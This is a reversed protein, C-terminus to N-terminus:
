APIGTLFETTMTWARSLRTLLGHPKAVLGYVQFLELIHATKRNSEFGSHNVAHLERFLNRFLEGNNIFGDIALANNTDKIRYKERFFLNNRPARVELVLNALSASKPM